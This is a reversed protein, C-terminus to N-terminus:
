ARCMQARQLVRRDTGADRDSREGRRARAARRMRGEANLHPSEGASRLGARGLAPISSCPALDILRPVPPGCRPALARTAAPPPASGAPLVPIVRLGGPRSRDHFECPGATPACVSACRASAAHRAANALTSEPQSRFILAPGAIPAVVASAAALASGGRRRDPTKPSPTCPPVPSGACRKHDSGPRRIGRGARLPGGGTPRCQHCSPTPAPIARLATPLASAPRTRRAM